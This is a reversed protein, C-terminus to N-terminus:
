AAAARSAIVVAAALAAVGVILTILATRVVAAGVDPGGVQPAPPPRDAAFGTSSGTSSGSGRYRRLGILALDASWCLGLGSLVWGMAGLQSPLVRLCLLSGVAVSLATRRWALATRERALGPGTPVSM